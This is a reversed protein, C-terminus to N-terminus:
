QMIICSLCEWESNVLDPNELNSKMMQKYDDISTGNCKIHVWKKCTTCYIAKHNHKVEFNCISCPFKINVNPTTNGLLPKSKISDLLFDIPSRTPLAMACLVIYYISIVIILLGCVGSSVKDALSLGLSLKNPYYSILFSLFHSFVTFYLM